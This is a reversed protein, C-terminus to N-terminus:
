WDIVITYEGAPLIGKAHLDNAVSEITPYFNRKWWISLSHGRLEPFREEQTLYQAPDRELWAKFNVGIIPGNVVEPITDPYDDDYNELSPVTIDYTGRDRCGAQQQLCYPRGYTETVVRDWDQCTITNVQKINLSSM